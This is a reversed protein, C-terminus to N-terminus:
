SRGSDGTIVEVGAIKRVRYKERMTEFLIYLKFNFGKGNSFGNGVVERRVYLVHFVTWCVYVLITSFVYTNACNVESM